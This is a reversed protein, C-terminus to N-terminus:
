RTNEGRQMTRSADERYFLQGRARFRATATAERERRKVRKPEVGVGVTYTRESPSSDCVCYNTGKEVRQLIQGM